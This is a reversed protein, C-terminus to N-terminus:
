EYLIIPKLHLESNLQFLAVLIDGIHFPSSIRLQVRISMAVGFM